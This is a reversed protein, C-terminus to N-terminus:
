SRSTSSSPETPMSKEAGHSNRSSSERSQQTYSSRKLFHSRQRRKVGAAANNPLCRGGVQPYTSLNRYIPSHTKELKKSLPSPDFHLAEAGRSTKLTPATQTGFVTECRLFYLASCKARGRIKSLHKLGNLEEALQDSRAHPRRLPRLRHWRERTRPCSPAYRLLCGFLTFDM